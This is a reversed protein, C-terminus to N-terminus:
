KGAGGCQLDQILVSIWNPDNGRADLADGLLREKGTSFPAHDISHTPPVVVVIRGGHDNTMIPAPWSARRAGGMRPTLWIQKCFILAMMPEPSTAVNKAHVEGHASPVFLAQGAGTSRVFAPERCNSPRLFFKYKIVPSIDSEGHRLQRQWRLNGQSRACSVLGARDANGLCRSPACHCCGALQPRVGNEFRQRLRSM